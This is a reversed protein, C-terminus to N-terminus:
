FFINEELDDPHELENELIEWPFLPTKEKYFFGTDEYEVINEFSKSDYQKSLCVYLIKANKYKNKIKDICIKVSTGTSHLAEVILFVPEEKTIQISDLPNFIMEINSTGNSYSIHKVQM